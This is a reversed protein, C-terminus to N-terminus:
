TGAAIGLSHSCYQQRLAAFDGDALPMSQLRDLELCMLLKSSIKSTGTRLNSSGGRTTVVSSTSACAFRLVVRTTHVHVPAHTCTYLFVGTITAIFFM